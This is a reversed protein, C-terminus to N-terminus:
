LATETINVGKSTIAWIVEANQKVVFRQNYSSCIRTLWAQKCVTYRLFYSGYLQSGPGSFNIRRVQQPNLGGTYKVADPCDLEYSVYDANQSNVIINTVYADSANVLSSCCVSMLATLMITKKM